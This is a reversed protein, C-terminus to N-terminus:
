HGHVGNPKTSKITERAAAANTIKGQSNILRNVILCKKVGRCFNGKMTLLQILFIFYLFIDNQKTNLFVFTEEFLSIKKKKM